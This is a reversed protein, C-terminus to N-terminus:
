KKAASPTAGAPAGAGNIPVVEGREKRARYDRWRQKDLDYKAAVTSLDEKKQVILQGQRALEEDITVLERELAVPVPKNGYAARNKELEQKRKSLEASFAEASKLQADITAMARNRALDIEDENTYSQSLALDKRAQEQQVKALARQREEEAEKAKRQEPTPPPDIKKVPRGQKDLVVSGKNEPPVRDSYHVVGQDDIWKYTGADKALAAGSAVTAAVAAAVIWTWRWGSARKM